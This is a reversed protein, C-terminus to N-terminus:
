QRGSEKRRKFRRPGSEERNKQLEVLADTDLINSGDDRKQYGAVDLHVDQVHNGRKDYYNEVFQIRVFVDTDGAYENAVHQTASEFTDHISRVM